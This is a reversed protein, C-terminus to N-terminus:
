TPAMRTEDIAPGEVEADPEACDDVLEVSDLEAPAAVILREVLAAMSELEDTVQLEEEDGELVSCDDMFEHTEEEGDLLEGLRKVEVLKRDVLMMEELLMGELLLEEESAPVM